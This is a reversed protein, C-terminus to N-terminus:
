LKLPLGVTFPANINSSQSKDRHHVERLHTLEQVELELANRVKKQASSAM